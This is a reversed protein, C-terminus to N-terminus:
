TYLGSKKISLPVLIASIIKLDAQVISQKFSFYPCACFLLTAEFKAPFLARTYSRLLPDLTRIAGPVSLELGPTLGIAFRLANKVLM